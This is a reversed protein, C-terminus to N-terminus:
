FLPEANKDLLSYLYNDLKNNSTFQSQINSDECNIHPPQLDYSSLQWFFQRTTSPGFENNMNNYLASLQFQSKYCNFVQHTLNTANKQETIDSFIKLRTCSNLVALVVSSSDIIKWYEVLKKYMFTTMNSQSFEEKKIYIDLHQQLSTFVFSFIAM